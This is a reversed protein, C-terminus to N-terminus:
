TQMKMRAIKQSELLLQASVCLTLYLRTFSCGIFLLPYQTTQQLLSMSAVALGFVICVALFRLGVYFLTQFYFSWIMVYRLRTQRM